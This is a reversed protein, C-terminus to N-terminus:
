WARPQEAAVGAGEPHGAQRGTDGPRGPHDPDVASERFYESILERQQALLQDFHKDVNEEGIAEATLYLDKLQELKRARAQATDGSSAQGRGTGAQETGTAAAEPGSSIGGASRLPEFPGRAEEHRVTTEETLLGYWYATDHEAPDQAPSGAPPAASPTSPERYVFVGADAPAPSGPGPPGAPGGPDAPRIRGEPRGPDDTARIVQAYGGDFTGYRGTGPPPPPWPRGSPAHGPGAPPRGSPSGRGPGSRTPYGPPFAGRPPLVAGPRSPDRPMAAERAPPAPRPPYAERPPPAPRPPYAERAPPAPRPPYAERARMRDRPPGTPYQLQQPQQPYQSPRASQASRAPPPGWGPGAAYPAPQRSPWPSRPGAMRGASARDGNDGSRSARATAPRGARTFAALLLTVLGVALGAAGLALGITTVHGAPRTSVVHAVTSMVVLALGALVAAASLVALSIVLRM